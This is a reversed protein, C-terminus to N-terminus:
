EMCGVLVSMAVFLLVFTVSAYMHSVVSAFSYTFVEQPKPNDKFPHKKTHLLDIRKNVKSFTSVSDVFCLLALILFDCVLNALFLIWTHASSVPQDHSIAAKPDSSGNSQIEWCRM